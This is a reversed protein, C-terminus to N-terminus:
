PEARFRSQGILAAFKRILYPDHQGSDERNLERMIEAHSRRFSHPRLRAMADYADVLAVIRAFLPIEEGRLGDPYGSGDFREHHFRVVAAILAVDELESALVIREGREPHTKMVARDSADFPGPKKLVDDPIGIKGVDHLGAALRLQKLERDTLACAQGLELCLGSVRDCHDQTAADREDLATSLGAVKTIALGYPHPLGNHEM